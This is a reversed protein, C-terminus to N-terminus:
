LESYDPMLPFGDDDYTFSSSNGFTDIWTEVSAQYGTAIKIDGTKVSQILRKPWLSTMIEIFDDKYKGTLRKGNKHHTAYEPKDLRVYACDRPNRSKDLYVHLHPVPGEDRQELEVQVSKHKCLQPNIIAM